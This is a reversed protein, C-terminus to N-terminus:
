EWTDLHALTFVSYNILDKVTDVISEFNPEQESNALQVLRQTKVHLMQVYSKLGFPFYSELTHTEGNYDEHKKEVVEICPEILALYEDRTM